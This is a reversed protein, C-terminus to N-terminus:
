WWPSRYGFLQSIENDLISRTRHQVVFDASKLTVSSLNKNPFKIALCFRGVKNIM